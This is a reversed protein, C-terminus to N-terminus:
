SVHNEGKSSSVKQGQALNWRAKAMLWNIKTEFDEQKPPETSGNVQHVLAAVTELAVVSDGPEFLQFTQEEKEIKNKLEKIRQSVLFSLSSGMDELPFEGIIFDELSAIDEKKLNSLNKEAFCFIDKFYLEQTKPARVSSEKGGKIFMLAGSPWSTKTSSNPLLTWVIKDLQALSHESTAWSYLNSLNVEVGLNEARLQKVVIKTALKAKDKRAFKRAGNEWQLRCEHCTYIWNRTATNWDTLPTIRLSPFHFLKSDLYHWWKIIEVLPNMYRLAVKWDPLGACNADLKLAGTSNILAVFLLSKDEESYDRNYIKATTHRDLLTYIPLSFIPHLLQSAKWDRIQTLKGAGGIKSSPLVITGIELGSISCFLKTEM